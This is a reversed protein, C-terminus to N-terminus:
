NFFLKAWSLVLNWQSVDCQKLYHNWRLIIEGYKKTVM